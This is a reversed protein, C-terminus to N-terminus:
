RLGIVTVWRMLVFTERLQDVHVRDVNTRPASQRGTYLRARIQAQRARGIERRM